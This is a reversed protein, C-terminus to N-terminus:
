DSDSDKQGGLVFDNGAYYENKLSPGITITTVSCIGDQIGVFWKGMSQKTGSNSEVRVDCSCDAPVSEPRPYESEVSVSPRILHEEEARAEKYVEKTEYYLERLLYTLFLLIVLLIAGLIVSGLVFFLMM